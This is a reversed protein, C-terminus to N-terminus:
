WGQVLQPTSDRLTVATTIAAGSKEFTRGVADFYQSLVILLPRPRVLPSPALSADSRFPFIVCLPPLPLSLLSCQLASVVTQRSDSQPESTIDSKGSSPRRPGGELTHKTYRLVRLKNQLPRQM